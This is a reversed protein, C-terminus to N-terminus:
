PRTAAPVPDGVEVTPSGDSRGSISMSPTATAPAPTARTHAPDPGEPDPGRRFRRWMAVAALWLVVQGGLLLYRWWPTDYRLAAPGTGSVRFQNAWGWAKTRPQHKGGVTLEWGSSAASGVLVVGPRTVKGSAGTTGRDAPLVNTAGTLDVSAADLYSSGVTTGKAVLSRTPAWARNRYVLLGDNVDVRELDLQQEFAARLTAPIDFRESSFPVPAKQLPVVVYRVGMPALLRGLRVTDRDSALSLGRRLLPTPDTAPASWRDAVTPLGDDTTAYALRDGIRWGSLPLVEPDGVWLVRFPETRRESQIFGLPASFDGGPVKWRGGVVGAFVSLSGVVVAVAAILSVAQPLGFRYAPLDIEFAAMGLAAALALGVAAPALLVEAPPLRFPLWGEHGAFLVSWSVLAVFWARAAWEFRWGRGIVLPLAAAVLLAWGLPPAGFPGSQFRILRGVSLLSNESSRVGAFSVWGQGAGFFQLSWPLHLVFAVAPAGFSAALIRGVGETRRAVVSGLAMGAGVLVSTVLVFPIFSGVLALLLGLALIRGILYRPSSPAETLRSAEAALAAGDGAPGLIDVTGPRTAYPALNGARALSRVLWPAVAFLILGGWSGNALANYPLPIALYVVFAVVAARRSGIPRALRWAGLAGVPLPGLILLERLLGMAGGLVAGLGGLIAYATPAPSTSGLGSTRWGSLWARLLTSPSSPFRAFEGVAPIPGTILDRSSILLLVLMAVAVLAATRRPGTKLSGALKRGSRTVEGIREGGASGSRLWARVRASGGAQLRRVETDPVARVQRLARRRAAMSAYHRLNWTWSRAAVGAHATRGTFLNALVEVVTLLFAQPVVRLRHWFGYGVLMTRVRHRAALVAVGEEPAREVLAQRHRVRAAPVILVRAGAVHSRWSLDVEEGVMSLAPDFGDLHELLDARILQCGGTIVFADRVADHQEQDLEGPEAYPVLYGAKDVTAGVQLLIQPEDWSVLKPGALGANSRFTERVLIRVADPALAVDDHCLLYFTAGEVMGRAENVARGFGVNEEVRRVYANPLIPAIRPTPDFDSGSDIVLVSLGQYTQDRLSALCEEFWPGPNHSVVVAVVSPLTEVADADPDPGASVIRFRYYAELDARFPQGPRM